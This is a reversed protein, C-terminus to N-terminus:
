GTASRARNKEEEAGGRHRQTPLVTRKGFRYTFSVVVQRTDRQAVFSEVYDDYYSSARPYGRWFIDTANLKATARKDFLNKQIGVNFMWSPKLHMYGYIQPAQYFGGVEASWDHPLIFSNSINVDFTVRGASLNTGAIDGTYHAYYVNANTTNNWWSYLRFQYSGNIGYYAMSTLNKQTQITVKEESDSPQIVEVIPSSTITYNANTVFKQNHMWSLEASYSLAPNLYPYGTKYTTPDLYYTSPNLQDYNPREIRRSLTIGLDNKADIHRQVAFSPFLQAYSRKFSSNKTLETADGNALTQEARLGLQTSWKEFDKSFNVYGANINERYIFHFTRGTDPVFVSDRKNFFRLDNDSTVYSSKIGAEIKAQKRLPMSYDVKASRIQTMGKLNGTFINPEPIARTDTAVDNYYTTTFDQVGSNPYAAYDVDATLSRGNSDFTHRMNLNGVKSGWVNPASNVTIFHRNHQGADKVISYNNGERLFDTVDGNVSAGLTTKASLTYDVGLGGSHNGIKYLYQNDQVYASVFQKNQYFNRDLTLHNFGERYSGNYNAFLNFKKNRYNMNGGWNTKGYVGQAYTANVSGNLGIKKDRKLKINIIGATGAADYKASPNSILEISEIAGSPMSKLMNALDEGSIPQIKGNIMVNVGQKGKLSINDNNDVTVGPSRALVELAISGTNVISSEVNVVLKDAHVEVFPKQARVAVENLENAKSTLLMDPVDVDAASVTFVASFAPQYGMMVVKVFFTGDPVPTLLYEGKENTLEMKVLASDAARLLMVSAFSIPKGSEEMIRGKVGAAFTVAYLFCAIITFCTTRTFRTYMVTANMSWIYGFTQPM